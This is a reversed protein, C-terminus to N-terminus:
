ITTDADNFLSKAISKSNQLHISRAYPELFGPKRNPNSWHSAADLKQYQVGKRGTIAELKSPSIQVIPTM